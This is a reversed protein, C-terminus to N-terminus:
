LYSFYTYFYLVFHNEKFDYNLLNKSVKINEDKTVGKLFPEAVNNVALYVHHGRSPLDSALSVGESVHSKLPLAVLMINASKTPSVLLLITIFNIVKQQMKM